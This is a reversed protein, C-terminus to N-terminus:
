KKFIRVQGNSEARRYALYASLQNGFEARLQPDQQWEANCQDELPLRNDILVAPQTQVPAAQDRAVLLNFLDARVDNVSLGSELYANLRDPTKALECAAKIQAASNLRSTVEDPSAQRAILGAALQPFGAGTCDAAIHASRAALAVPDVTAPPSDQSAPSAPPAPREPVAAPEAAPPSNELHAEDTMPADKPTPTMMMAAPPTKFHQLVEPSLCATASIADTTRDAFGLAVAEPGTMWTEDMMMENIEDADRGTKAVYVAVIGSEIKELIEANKRMDSADGAVMGSVRHIMLYANEPIVVEDGAMAIVSAISAALGEVYVTKHATHRKLQGHIANGDFVSGGPSNIYIDLAKPKGLAKLSKAFSKATTQDEDFWSGGIVGDIRIEARDNALSKFEITM